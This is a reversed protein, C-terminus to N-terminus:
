LLLALYVGYGALLLTGESRSIRMGRLMMPLLILSGWCGCMDSRVIAPAVTLPRVLAAVGLIGLVNFINSGIVNALAIDAQRRMAAVASTALEPLSTGGAVITLGIVRESLGAREALAVAGMVLLRAGVVLLALGIAVLGLDVAAGRLRGRADPRSM